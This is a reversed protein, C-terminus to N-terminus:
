FCGEPGINNAPYSSPCYLGGSDQTWCKQSGWIPCPNCWFDALWATALPECRDSPGGPWTSWQALPFIPFMGPMAKARSCVTLVLARALWNAGGLSLLSNVEYLAAQCSHGYTLKPPPCFTSTPPISPHSCSRQAGFGRGGGHCGQLGKMAWWQWAAVEQFDSAPIKLFMGDNEATQVPIKCLTFRSDLRRM